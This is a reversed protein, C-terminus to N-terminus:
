SLAVHGSAFQRELVQSTSVRPQSLHNGATEELSRTDAQVTMMTRRSVESKPVMVAFGISPHLPLSSIIAAPAGPGVGNIRGLGARIRADDCSHLYGFPEDRHPSGFCASARVVIKGGRSV